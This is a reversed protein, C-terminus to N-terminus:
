VISSPEPAGEVAVTVTVITPASSAGVATASLAVACSSPGATVM